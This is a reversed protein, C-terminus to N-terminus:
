TAVERTGLVAIDRDEADVAAQVEVAVSGQEARVVLLGEFRAQEIEVDRVLVLHVDRQEARTFRHEAIVRQEAVVAEAADITNAVFVLQRQAHGGAPDFFVAELAM